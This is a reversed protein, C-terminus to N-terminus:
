SAIRTRGTVRRRERRAGGCVAVAFLLHVSYISPLQLRLDSIQLKPPIEISLKKDLLLLVVCRNVVRLLVRRGAGALGIEGRLGDTSIEVRTSAELCRTRLFHPRPQLDAVGQTRSLAFRNNMSKGFVSWKNNMSQTQM